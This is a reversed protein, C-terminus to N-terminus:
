VVSPQVQQQCDVDGRFVQRRVQLAKLDADQFAFLGPQIDGGAAVVFFQKRQDGVLDEM